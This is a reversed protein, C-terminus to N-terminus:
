REQAITRQDLTARRLQAAPYLTVPDGCSGMSMPQQIQQVRKLQRSGRFDFPAQYQDPSVTSSRSLCSLAASSPPLINVALHTWAM